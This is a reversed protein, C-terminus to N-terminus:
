MKLQSLIAQQIKHISLTSDKINSLIVLLDEKSNNNRVVGGYNITQASVINALSLLILSYVLKM